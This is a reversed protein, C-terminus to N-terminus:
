LSFPYKKFSNISDSLLKRDTVRVIQCHGDNAIVMWGAKLAGTSNVWTTKLGTYYYFVAPEPVDYDVGKEKFYASPPILVIATKLNHNKAFFDAIQKSVTYSTGWRRKKREEISVQNKQTNFDNWYTVIRETFWQQNRPFQFFLYLLGISIFTLVITKKMHAFSAALFPSICVFLFTIGIPAEVKSLLSELTLVGSM